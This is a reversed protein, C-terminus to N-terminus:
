MAWVDMIYGQSRFVVCLHIKPYDLQLYFLPLAAPQDRCAYGFQIWLDLSALSALLPM